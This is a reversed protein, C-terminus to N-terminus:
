PVPEMWFHIHALVVDEYYELRLLHIGDPVDIEAEYTDGTYGHWEDILLQGDLWFRAGDDVQLLFRYRGGNIWIDRTWRASFGDVPVAPAPSGLEWDFRIEVDQRTLVPRGHLGTNDWYEARWADPAPPVPTDTPVVPQQTPTPTPTSTVTPSPTPSPTPTEIKTWGLQIMAGGVNEYYDIQLLHSGGSLYRDVTWTEGSGDHWEDLLIQGDVWLRVGDDSRLIFRYPGEGFSLARTWRVSFRDAPLRPDPAGAGWNFDVAFDNRVVAPDGVVGMNTFYEGRWDTIIVEPTPSPSPTATPWPTDTVSPTATAPQTPRPTPPPLTATATPVLLVFRASAELGSRNGRAIVDAWSQGIWRLENPFTLATHFDGREDVVAAAYAYGRGEGEEPSRLFVFVPEDPWWGQGTVTILTNVPGQSPNITVRAEGSGAPPEVSSTPQGGPEVTGSASTQTVFAPLIVPPSDPSLIRWLLLGVICIVVLAVLVLGAVVYGTRGSNDPENQYYTARGWEDRRLQSPPEPKTSRSAM